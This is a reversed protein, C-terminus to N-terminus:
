FGSVVERECGVVEIDERSGEIYGIVRDLTEDAHRTDNSVCVVGLTAMQWTDNDEVEAVAVNFRNRVRSCLSAIVRRKGKLSQNEPIRLRVRCVGVNM